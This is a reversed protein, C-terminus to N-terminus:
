WCAPLRPSSCDSDKLPTCDSRNLRSPALFSVTSDVVLLDPPFCGEQDEKTEPRRPCRYTMPIGKIKFIKLKKLKKKGIFDLFVGFFCSKVSELVDDLFDGTLFENVTEDLKWFIEVM